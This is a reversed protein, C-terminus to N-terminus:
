FHSIAIAVLELISIAFLFCGVGHFCKDAPRICDFAEGRLIVHRGLTRICIRRLKTFVCPNMPHAYIRGRNHPNKTTHVTFSIWPFASRMTETSRKAIENAHLGLHFFFDLLHFLLYGLSRQERVGRANSYLTIDVCFLYTENYSCKRSRVDVLDKTPSMSTASSLNSAM